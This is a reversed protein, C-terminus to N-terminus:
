GAGNGASRNACKDAYGDENEGYNEGSSASRGDVFAGVARAEVPGFEAIRNEFGVKNLDRLLEDRRHLLRSNGLQWRRHARWFGAHISRWMSMRSNGLQSQSQSMFMFM